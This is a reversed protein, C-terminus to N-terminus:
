LYQLTYFLCAIVSFLLCVHDLSQKSYKRHNWIFPIGNYHFVVLMDYYGCPLQEESESSCTEMGCNVIIIFPPEYINYVFDQYLKKEYVVEQLKFFPTNCILFHAKKRCM